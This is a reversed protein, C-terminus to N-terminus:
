VRSRADQTLQIKIKQLLEKKVSDPVSARAKPTIEALLEDVKIDVGREKVIQRCLMHMQDKWGCEVLRERLLTKLAFDIDSARDLFWALPGTLLPLDQAGQPQWEFGPFWTRRSYLSRRIYDQVGMKETTHSVIPVFYARYLVEHHSIKEM